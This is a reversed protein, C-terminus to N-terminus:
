LWPMVSLFLPPTPAAPSLFFIALFLRDLGFFELEHQQHYRTSTATTTRRYKNMNDRQAHM